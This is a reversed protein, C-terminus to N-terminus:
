SILGRLSLESAVFHVGAAGMLAKDRTAEMSTLRARAM